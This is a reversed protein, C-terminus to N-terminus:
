LKIGTGLGVVEDNDGLVKYTTINGNFTPIFRFSTGIMAPNSDYLLTCTVISDQMTWTGGEVFFPNPLDEGTNLSDVIVSETKMRYIFIFHTENIIAM